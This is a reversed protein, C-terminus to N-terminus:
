AGGAAGVEPVCSAGVCRREQELDQRRVAQVCVPLCRLDERM